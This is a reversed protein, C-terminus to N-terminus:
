KNKNAVDLLKMLLSSQNWPKLLYQGVGLKVCAVVLERESKSTLMLFPLNKYKSNSARLTKLFEVGNKRPMVIDCIAFDIQKGSKELDLIREFAEQGDHAEFIEGTFGVARLDALIKKITELDDDVVLINLKEIGSM